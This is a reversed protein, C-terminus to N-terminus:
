VTVIRVVLTITHAGDAAALRTQPGRRSQIRHRRTINLRSGCPLAPTASVTEGEVTLTQRLQALHYFVNFLDPRNM